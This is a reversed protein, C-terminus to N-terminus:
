GEMNAPTEKDKRRMLRRLDDKMVGKGEGGRYILLDPETVVRPLCPKICCKILTEIM